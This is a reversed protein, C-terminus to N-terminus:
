SLSNSINEYAIEQLVDMQQHWFDVTQDILYQIRNTKLEPSNLPETLMVVLCIIDPNPSLVNRDLRDLNLNRIYPNKSNGPHATDVVKAKLPKNHRNSLGTVAVVHQAIHPDGNNIDPDSITLMTRYLAGRFSIEPCEHKAHRYLDTLAFKVDLDDEPPFELIHSFLGRQEYLEIAAAYAVHQIHIAGHRANEIFEPRPKVDGCLATLASTACSGDEKKQYINRLYQKVEAPM